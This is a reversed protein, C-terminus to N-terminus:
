GAQEEHSLKGSDVSDSSTSEALSSGGSGSTDEWDSIPSFSPPSPSSDSDALFAAMFSSDASEQSHHINASDIKRYNFTPLTCVQMEPIASKLADSWYQVEIDHDICLKKLLDVTGHHSLCINM